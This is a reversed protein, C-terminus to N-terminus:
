SGGGLSAPVKNAATHQNNLTVDAQFQYSGPTCTGSGSASDGGSPSGQSKTQTSHKLSV